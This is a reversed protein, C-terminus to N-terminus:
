NGAFMEPHVEKFDIGSRVGGSWGHGVGIPETFDFYRLQVTWRSHEAFNTGSKHANLFDIFVVDGVNLLPTDHDYKAMREEEDAFTYADADVKILPFRRDVTHIPFVGEFHSSRAFTVPGLEPTINVLPAWITIGGPSRLQGSYDQHWNTKFKIDGPDDIRIGCGNRAIGLIAGEAERLQTLAEFSERKTIIKNLSALQKVADYVIGGLAPNKKRISLYGDHWLGTDEYIVDHARAVLQIIKRIDRQLPLIEKEIDYFNRVVIYGNKKFKEIDM